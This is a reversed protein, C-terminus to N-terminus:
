WEAPPKERLYDRYALRYPYSNGGTPIAVTRFKNGVRNFLVHTRGQIDKATNRFEFEFDLDRWQPDGFLIGAPALWLPFTQHIEDEIVVWRGGISFAP